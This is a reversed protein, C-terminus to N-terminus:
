RRMLLQDQMIMFIFPGVMRRQRFPLIRKVKVAESIVANRAEIVSDLM